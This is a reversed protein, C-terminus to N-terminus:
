LRTITRHRGVVISSAGALLVIVPVVTWWFLLTSVTGVIALVAGGVVLRQDPLESARSRRDWLAFGAGVLLLILVGIM